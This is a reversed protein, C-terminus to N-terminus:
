LILFGVAPRLLMPILFLLFKNKTRGQLEGKRDIAFCVLNLLVVLEITNVIVVAQPSVRLQDLHSVTAADGGGQQNFGLSQAEAMTWDVENGDVM